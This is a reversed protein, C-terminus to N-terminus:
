PDTTLKDAVGSDHRTTNRTSSNWSRPLKLKALLTSTKGGIASFVHRFFNIMSHWGRLNSEDDDRQLFVKMAMHYQRTIMAPFVVLQFGIGLFAIAPYVTKIDHFLNQSITSIEPLALGVKGAISYCSCRNFIGVQTAVITGMTILTSLLDKSFMFWFQRDDNGSWTVYDLVAALLWIGVIATETQSRCIFGIPPVLISILCGTFLCSLVILLTFPVSGPRLRLVKSLYTPWTLRKEAPDITKSSSPTSSGLHSEADRIQEILKRRAKEPVWSYIGGNRERMSTAPVEVKNEFLHTNPMEIQLHGLERDIDLQFRRLIRPIANETQSVGIISGLFVIPIIWFYLASFAISHAEINIYTPPSPGSAADPTRGFALAVTGIFFAQAVIIPLFKTSRDAALANATKQCIKM